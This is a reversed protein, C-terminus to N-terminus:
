IFLGKAMQEFLEKHIFVYDKGAWDESLEDYRPYKIGSATADPLRTDVGM